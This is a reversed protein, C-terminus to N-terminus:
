RRLGRPLARHGQHCPPGRAATRPPPRILDPPAEPRPASRRSAAKRQSPNWNDRELDRPTRLPGPSRAPASVQPAVNASVITAMTLAASVRTYANAHPSLPAPRARRRSFPEKRCAETMVCDARRIRALGNSIFWSYVTVPGICRPCLAIVRILILNSRSTADRIKGPQVQGGRTCTVDSNGEAARGRGDETEAICRPSPKAVATGTGM